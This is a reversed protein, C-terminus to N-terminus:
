KLVRNEIGDLVRRNEEATAQAAIAADRKLLEKEFQQKTICGKVPNACNGSRRLGCFSDCPDPTLQEAPIPGRARVQNIITEGDPIPYETMDDPDQSQVPSVGVGWYLIDKLESNKILYMPEPQRESM